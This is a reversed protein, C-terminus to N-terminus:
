DFLIKGGSPLHTEGEPDRAFLQKSKRPKGVLSSM